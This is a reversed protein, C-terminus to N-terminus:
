KTLNFFAMEFIRSPELLIIKGVVYGGENGIKVNTMDIESGGFIVSVKGGKFDESDVNHTRGSLISELDFDSGEKM